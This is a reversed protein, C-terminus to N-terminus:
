AFSAAASLFSFFYPAAAASPHIQLHWSPIGFMRCNHNVTSDAFGYDLIAGNAHGLLM